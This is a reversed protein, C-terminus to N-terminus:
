LASPLSGGSMLPCSYPILIRAISISPFRKKSFLPYESILRKEYPSYVSSGSSESLVIITVLSSGSSQSLLHLIISSISVETAVLMSFKSVNIIPYKLIISISKVCVPFINEPVALTM